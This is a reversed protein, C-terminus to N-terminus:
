FLRLVSQSAQASLSLATASLSQRTQLMLMNAGEENMDALTLNDAGETLTNMMNAAFKEQINVIGLSSSMRSSESRLTSLAIDMKGIDENIDSNLTWGWRDDAGGTTTAKTSLQLDSATASFGKVNLASGEFVVNLDNEMLLNVGKYGSSNATANIQAMIDNYQQALVRKESFVHYGDTDTLVEADAGLGTADAYDEYNGETISTSSAKTQFTLTTGSATATMDSAADTEEEANILAALNAVTTAVDDGVAFETTPHTVAGTSAVATYAEGGVTIVDTATIATFQIKVQNQSAGLASKALARASDILDSIATIGADAAKITQIAESMSEKLSSIDNARSIQSRSSFYTIPNDLASNVKKGTALREQTRNLLDVSGQLSILNSRMGSSLSIDNIAM